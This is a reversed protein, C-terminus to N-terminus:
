QHRRYLKIYQVTFGEFCYFVPSCKYTSDVIQSYVSIYSSMGISPFRNRTSLGQRLVPQSDDTVHTDTGYLSQKLCDNKYSVYSITSLQTETSARRSLKTIKPKKQIQRTYTNITRYLNINSILKPYYASSGAPWPACLNRRSLLYLLKPVLGQYLAKNIREAILHLATALLKKWNKRGPCPTMKAGRGENRTRWKQFNSPLFNKQPRKQAGRKDAGQAAAWDAWGESRCQFLRCITSVWVHRSLGLVTTLQCFEPTSAVDLKAPDM